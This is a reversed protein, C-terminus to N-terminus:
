GADGTEPDGKALTALYAVLDDIQQADLVPKGLYATAVQRLGTTRGYSPMASTPNNGMPDVIKARMADASLRDAIATLEPGIDGQFPVDLYAVRHCLVCHGLERDVFIERGREAPTPATNAIAWTVPLGIVVAAFM